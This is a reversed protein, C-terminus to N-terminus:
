KQVSGFVGNNFLWLVKDAGNSDGNMDIDTNLYEGFSGNDLLWASKDKGTIDYSVIDNIQDCDGAFLGWVDTDLETSGAGGVAYSDALRFDWSLTRNTVNVKTPSMVAMHNRHEAVIYYTGTLQSTTLCAGPFTIKGDSHLLGAVQAVETSKTLGTRLSILVWDVVTSQYDSDTWGTGETGQYNWPAVGYPQGAIPNASMGPLVSRVTNLTTSMQGTQIDYAGELFLSIDLIVCDPIVEIYVTATDCYNPTGNDCARYTFSDIGSFGSFPTYYFSGDFNFLVSGNQTFSVLLNSMPSTEVDFDNTSVNGAVQIGEDTVFTDNRVIPQDNVSLINILVSETTCLIPSSNDCVEYSFSDVGFYNTTPIYSFTGNGNLTVAGNVPNASLSTTMPQNEVETDNVLVDNNLLDDENITFVDQVAVPPDNVPSISLSVNETLCISPVGDDCVQYTFADSGFYNANPTYTFDGNPQMIVTGNAPTNMVTASLINGDTDSDNTLLNGIIQNDETSTFLDSVATPSDNVSNIVINVIATGCLVPTANDCVEYIFNDTGFYNLNPTYTFTGNSNLTLNGNLADVVLSTNLPQNEPDQDNDLVNAMLTSDENIIYNDSQPNPATNCAEITLLQQDAGSCEFYTYQLDVVALGSNSFTAYVSSDTATTPSGGQITWTFNTNNNNNNNDNNNNNSASVELLVSDGKCITSPATITFSPCPTNARGPTGLPASINTSAQWSEPLGNDLAPNILSLTPGNGDPISDWPLNDNYRLEDALCLNQDFIAIREGGSNLSFTFDGLLNSGSQLHPFIISFMNIDQALVLFENAELTTGAPISFSNKSDLFTWNSLDILNATPNHLEIWDGPNNLDNSNYNIENIVISPSPTQCPMSNQAGPSGGIAASAHWNTSDANNAPVPYDLELSKGFGDALLPWPINDSFKVSDLTQHLPNQLVLQEGSNSLKSDTWQFVQYGNGTYQSTDKAIVIYEGPLITTGEPFEFCIGSTFEYETLNRPTSDPNYIEIFEKDNISDSPHYHIENIVLDLAAVFVPTRTTNTSYSENLSANPNGTEQWHSFRYGPNPIAHLEVPTNTFYDGTYNYPIEFYNSNVVVKGNTNPNFNLTLSFSSLGFYSEIHNRLNSSRSNAFTKLKNVESVWTNYNAVGGQTGWLTTHAPIENNLLNKYNDIASNVTTADYLLNLQTAYRQIFENKFDTNQMFSRFLVTSRPSNRSTSTGPVMMYQITNHNVDSWGTDTDLVAMRWKENSATSRWYIKNSPSTTSPWDSPKVWMQLMYYNLFNNLDFQPAIYNHNAQSFPQNALCYEYINKLNLSDGEIVVIETHSKRLRIIEISDNKYKPFKYRFYHKSYNDRINHIGWYQGNIYMVSPRTSQIELDVKNEALSQMVADGMMSKKWHNGGSRFRLRRFEEQMRQPFVQYPINPSPYQSKTKFQLGKQAYRRTCNGFISLGGELDFVKNGAEDFMILNSPSEWEQWYNAPKSSCIEPIVGNAGVVYMGDQDSWMYDPEINVSLIAVDHNTNLLYATTKIDSNAYGSKVSIAKVTQTNSVTFPGTYLTSTVEPKSGDLTYYISVGSEVAMISVTQPTPCVCSPPAITPLALKPQSNNNTIAPTPPTLASFIGSGDPLRGYGLDNSVAPFSFSDILTTGDPATLMVQDGGSNLKFSLHNEGQGPENDAWFLLYGGPSITTLASNTSPIQWLTPNAYDDSLYYGALNITTNGNNYIELIDDYEGFNDSIITQNSPIVENIFLQAFTEKNHIGLLIMLVIGKLYKHM